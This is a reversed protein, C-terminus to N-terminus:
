LKWRNTNWPKCNGKSTIHHRHWVQKMVLPFYQLFGPFQYVSSFRSHCLLCSNGLSSRLLFHFIILWYSWKTYKKESFDLRWVISFGSLSTELILKEQCEHSDKVGAERCKSGTLGIVPPAHYSFGIFTRLVHGSSAMEYKSETHVPSKYIKLQAQCSSM